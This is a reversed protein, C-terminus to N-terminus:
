RSQTDTFSSHEFFNSSRLTRILRRTTNVPRFLNEISQDAFLTNRVHCHPCVKHRHHHDVGLRQFPVPSHTLTTGYDTVRHRSSHHPGIWPREDEPVIFVNSLELSLKAEPLQNLTDTSLRIHHLRLLSALRYKYLAAQTERGGQLRYVALCTQYGPPLSPELTNDPGALHTSIKSNPIVRAVGGHSMDDYMLVQRSGRGGRSKHIHRSIYHASSGQQNDYELPPSEDGGRFVRSVLEYIVEPREEKGRRHVIIKEPYDWTITPTEVILAIPLSIHVETLCASGSCRHVLKSSSILHNETNRWCQGMETVKTPKVLDRLWSQLKGDHEAHLGENLQLHFKFSVHNNLDYHPSPPKNTHGTCSHFRIYYTRFYSQAAAFKLPEPTTSAVLLNGM